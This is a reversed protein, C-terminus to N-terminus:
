GVESFPTVSDFVLLDSQYQYLPATSDAITDFLSFHGLQDLNHTIAVHRGDLSARPSGAGAGPVSDSQWIENGDLDIM